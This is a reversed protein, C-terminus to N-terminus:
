KMVSVVSLQDNRFIEYEEKSFVYPWTMIRMEVPDSDKHYPPQMHHFDNLIFGNREYFLKRRLTLEDHPVEIELLVPMGEAKIEELIATGVGGSRRRSDVAFHEGYVYGERFIWYTFFGLLGGDGEDTFAMFHYRIDNLAILLDERSRREEYPFSEEYIKLCGSFLEDAPSIIRKSNM